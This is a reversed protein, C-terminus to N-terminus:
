PRWADVFVTQKEFLQVHEALVFPEDINRFALDFHEPEEAFRPLVLIVARPLLQFCQPCEKLKDM